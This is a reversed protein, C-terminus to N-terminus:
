HSGSIFQGFDKVGNGEEYEVYYEKEIVRLVPAPKPPTGAYFRAGSELVVPNERFREDALLDEVVMAENRNVVHTCISMERPVTRTTAFKAPLGVASKYYQTDEDIFTIYAGTVKFIRALEQTIADFAEEPTTLLIDLQRLDAVRQAEAISTPTKEM